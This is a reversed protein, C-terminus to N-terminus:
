EHCEAMGYQWFPILTWLSEVVQQLRALYSKASQGLFQLVSNHDRCQSPGFTFSKDPKVFFKKYSTPCKLWCLQPAEDSMGKQGKTGWVCSDVASVPHLIDHITWRAICYPWTLGDLKDLLIQFLKYSCSYTESKIPGYLFLPETENTPILKRKIVVPGVCVTTEGLYHTLYSKGM